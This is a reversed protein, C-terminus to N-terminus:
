KKDCSCDDFKLRYMDNMTSSHLMSESPERKEKTTMANFDQDNVYIHRLMSITVPKSFVRKFINNVHKIYSNDKEFPRGNQGVVLYDRPTQKLSARVVKELDAPLVRVYQHIRSRQTKFENLVLTASSATVIMYNGTTAKAGTPKRTLIAVAGYDARVPPIMTYMCIILYDESAKDLADRIRIVEALPLYAAKQRASAENNEYKELVKAGIDKYLVRWKDYHRPYKIRLASNHKFVTVMINMATKQSSPTKYTERIYTLAKTPHTLLYTIKSGTRKEIVGIFKIYHDRSKESIDGNKFAAEIGNM